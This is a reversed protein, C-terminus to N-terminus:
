RLSVLLGRYWGDGYDLFENVSTSTGSQGDRDDPRRGPGLSPVLPNFDVVGTLRRSRVALADIGLRTARGLEQTWGLSLQRAYPVRFGPSAVQVVSPFPVSPEPLRHGPSRWAAAALPLGARLLRLTQGDVISSVLPVLLLPDEHFLGFAGRFS